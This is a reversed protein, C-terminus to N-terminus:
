DMMQEHNGSFRDLLEDLRGLKRYVSSSAKGIEKRYSQIVYISKNSDIRNIAVYVIIVELVNSCM